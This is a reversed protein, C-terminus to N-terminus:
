GYFRNDDLSGDGEYFLKELLQLKLQLSKIEQQQVLLVDNFGDFAVTVNKRMDRIEKKLELFIEDNKSLVQVVSRLHNRSKM